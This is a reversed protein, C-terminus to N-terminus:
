IWNIIVLDSKNIGVNFLFINNDIKSSYSRYFNSSICINKRIM